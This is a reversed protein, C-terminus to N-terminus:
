KGHNIKRMSIKLLNLLIISKSIEAISLEKDVRFSNTESLRAYMVYFQKALDTLEKPVDEHYDFDCRQVFDLVTTLNAPNEILTTVDFEDGKMKKLSYNEAVISSVVSPNDLAIGDCLIDSDIFVSEYSERKLLKEIIGNADKASVLYRKRIEKCLESYNSIDSRDKRYNNLLISTSKLGSMEM